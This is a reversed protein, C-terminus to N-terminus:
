VTFPLHPIGLQKLVCSLKLEHCEDKMFSFLQRRARPECLAIFSTIEKELLPIMLDALKVQICIIEDDDPVPETKEKRNKLRSSISYKVGYPLQESPIGFANLILNIDLLSYMCATQYFLKSLRLKKPSIYSVFRNTKLTSVFNDDYERSSCDDGNEIRKTLTHIRQYGVVSPDIGHERLASEVTVDPYHCRVYSVFEDSFAISKGKKVFVGSPVLMETEEPTNAHKRVSVAKGSCYAPHRRKFNVCLNDIVRWGVMKCPIGHAELTSRIAAKGGDSWAEYLQCRFEYKLSLRKPTIERVNPNASLFQIEDDTFIKAM